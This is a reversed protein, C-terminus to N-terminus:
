SQFIGKYDILTKGKLFQAMKAPSLPCPARVLVQIPDPRVNEKVVTIGHEACIM